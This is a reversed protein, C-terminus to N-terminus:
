VDTPSGGSDAMAEVGLQIAHIPHKLGGSGRCLRVGSLLGASQDEPVLSFAMRSRFPATDGYWGAMGKGFGELNLRSHSLVGHDELLRAVCAEDDELYLLVILKM